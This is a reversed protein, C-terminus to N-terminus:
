QCTLPLFARAGTAPPWSWTWWPVGAVLIVIVQGLVVTAGAYAYALAPGQRSKLAATEGVLSSVTTLCGCLGNQLAYLALCRPLPLAPRRATPLRALLGVAYLLTGLLNALLTGLPWRRRLRRRAWAQTCRRWAPSPQMPSPPPPLSAGAGVALSPPAPPRPAPNFGAALAYRMWTGLGSVAAAAAWGRHHHAVPDRTAAGAWVHPPATACLWAIGLGVLAPLVAFRWGDRSPWRRWVCRLTPMPRRNATAADVAGRRGRALRRCGQVLDPGLGVVTWCVGWVVLLAQLGDLVHRGGALFAALVDAMWTSFTTLSGCFGTQIVLPMLAVLTTHRDRPSPPPRRRRRGHPATGVRAWWACRCPEALGFVFCGVAQPALSPLLSGAVPAAAAAPTWLATLTLRCLTGLLSAQVLCALVTVLSVTATAPADDPGAMPAAEPLPSALPALAASPDPPALASPTRTTRM